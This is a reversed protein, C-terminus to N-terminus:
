VTAVSQTKQEMSKVLQRQKHLISCWKRKDIIGTFEELVIPTFDGGVRGLSQSCYILQLFLGDKGAQDRLKTINERLIECLSLVLSKIFSYLLMNAKRISETDSDVRFISEFTMITQFCHERIVEISRKLFREISNARKLPELVQLEGLIFQYRSKLFIKELIEDSMTEGGSQFPGIRKLYTIIKIIHSQKLDTNLLRVLGNIMEKIEQQIDGEVKSILTMESYRISLRRVHSAIEVCEGYHGSKVCANALSPLELIDMIRDMNHLVTSSQLVITEEGDDNKHRWIKQIQRQYQKLLQNWPITEPEPEGPEGPEDLEEAEKIEGEKIEGEKIEGEKTEGEEIEGEEIEGEEIEGEKIVGEEENAGRNDVVMYGCYGNLDKTFSNWCKKYTQNASLILDLHKYTEDRIKDDLTRQQSDLEAIREILSYSTNTPDQSPRISTALLVDPDGDEELFEELFKLAEERLSDRDASEGDKEVRRRIDEPLENSLTELLIDTATSM